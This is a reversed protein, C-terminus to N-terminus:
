RQALVMQADGEPTLNQDLYGGPRMLVTAGARFNEGTITVSTGGSTPGANPSVGNIIPSPPRSDCGPTIVAVVLALWVSSLRNMVKTTAM